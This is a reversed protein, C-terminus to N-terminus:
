TPKNIPTFSRRTETTTQSHGPESAQVKPVPQAPSDITDAEGEDVQVGGDAAAPAAQDRPRRSKQDGNEDMVVLWVKPEPEPRPSEHKKRHQRLNDRRSHQRGCLDCEFMERERNHLTEIHRKVHDPRAFGRNCAKCKYPKEKNATEKQPEGEEPEGAEARRNRIKAKTRKDRTGKEICKEKPEIESSPPPLGINVGASTGSANSTTATPLAPAVAPMGRRGTLMEPGERDRSSRLSDSGDYRSPFPEPHQRTHEASNSQRGSNVMAIAGERDEDAEATSRYPPPDAENIYPTSIRREMAASQPAPVAPSAACPQQNQPSPRWAPLPHRGAANTPREPGAINTNDTPVHM